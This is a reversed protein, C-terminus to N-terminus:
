NSFTGLSQILLKKSPPTLIVIWILNFNKKLLASLHQQNAPYTSDKIKSIRVQTPSIKKRDTNAIGVIISEPIMNILFLDLNSFGAIHIFDEDISGDLL